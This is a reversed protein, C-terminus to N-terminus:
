IARLCKFFEQLHRCLSIGRGEEPCWSVDGKGWSVRGEGNGGRLGKIETDPTPEHASRQQACQEAYVCIKKGDDM